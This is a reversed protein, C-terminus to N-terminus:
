QKGTVYRQGKNNAVKNYQMINEGYDPLGSYGNLQYNKFSGTNKFTFIDGRYNAQKEAYRNNSSGVQKGNADIFFGLEGM